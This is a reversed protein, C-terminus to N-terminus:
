LDGRKMLFDIVKDLIINLNDLFKDFMYMKNKDVEKEDIIEKEICYDLFNLYERYSPTVMFSVHVEDYYNEVLVYSLSDLYYNNYLEIEISTNSLDFEYVVRRDDESSPVISNLKPMWSNNLKQFNKLNYM